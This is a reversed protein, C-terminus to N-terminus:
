LILNISKSDIAKLELETNKLSKNVQLKLKRKLAGIKPLNINKGIDNYVMKIPDEFEKMREDFSKLADEGRYVKEHSIAVKSQTPYKNFNKRYLKATYPRDPDTYNYHIFGRKATLYCNFVQFNKPKTFLSNLVITQM